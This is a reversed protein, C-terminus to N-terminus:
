CLGNSAAIGWLKGKIYDRDEYTLGKTSFSELVKVKITGPKAWLSRYPLLERSGEIILPAIDSANNIAMVAPGKKYESLRGNRSRKGEISILVNGGSRLFRNTKNVARRAQKSWQRVVVFNTIALFWGLVPYFAFEINLVGRTREVPLIPCVLADLFSTQNLLVFITNGYPEGNSRDFEFVVNIGFLKFFLRVYSQFIKISKWLDFLRVVAAMIFYPPGLLIYLTLKLVYAILRLAKM